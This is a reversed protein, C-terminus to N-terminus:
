TPWTAPPLAAFLLVIMRQADAPGNYHPRQASVWSSLARAVWLVLSRDEAPKARRAAPHDHDQESAAGEEATTHHVRLIRLARMPKRHHHRKPPVLRCQPGTEGAESATSRESHRKPCEAVGAVAM